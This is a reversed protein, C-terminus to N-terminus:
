TFAEEIIDCLIHGMLIHMEQIFSTEQAPVIMPLDAIEAAIGGNKGLFGIAYIGIKKAEALGQLINESNGSTSIAICVDGEKGLAELQRSFIYNFGYDNAISTIAASDSTLSIAALGKRDRKYRGTFEATIHEADSASGGNGFLIIKKGNRLAEICKDAAFALDNKLLIETAEAIRIHEQFASAIKEINKEM